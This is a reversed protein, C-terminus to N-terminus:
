GRGGQVSIAMTDSYGALSGQFMVFRSSGQTVRDSLNIPFYEGVMAAAAEFGVTPSMITCGKSEADGSKTASM